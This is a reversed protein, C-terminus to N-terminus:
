GPKLKYLRASRGQFVGNEVFEAHDATLNRLFEVESNQYKTQSEENPEVKVALKAPPNLVLAKHEKSNVIMIMFFVGPDDEFLRFLADFDGHMVSYGVYLWPPLSFEARAFNGQDFEKIQIVSMNGNQEGVSFKLCETITFSVSTTQNMRDVVQAFSPQ